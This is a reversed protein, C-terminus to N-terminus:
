KRNRFEAVFEEAQEMTAVDALDIVEVEKGDVMVSVTDDDHQILSITGETYIGQDNDANM